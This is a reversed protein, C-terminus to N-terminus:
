LEIEVLLEVRFIFEVMAIEEVLTALKDTVVMGISELTCEETTLEVIGEVIDCAVLLEDIVLGAMEVTWEDSTVFGITEVTTVDSQFVVVCAADVSGTCIVFLLKEEKEGPPV